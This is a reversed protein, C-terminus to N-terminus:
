ESYPGYDIEYKTHGKRENEPPLEMYNSGYLMILSKDYEEIGMFQNNEFDYM